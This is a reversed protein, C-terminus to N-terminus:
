DTCLKHGDILLVVDGHGETLDCFQPAGDVGGIVSEEVVGAKVPPILRQHSLDQRVKSECKKIVHKAIFDPPKEEVPVRVDM